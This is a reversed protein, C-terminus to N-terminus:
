EDGTKWKLLIRGINTAHSQITRLHTMIELHTDGRAELETGTDRLREYHQRELVAGLSRYKKHKGKMRRAKELDMDRFVEIARALQKQVKTHYEILEKKGDASFEVKEGIWSEAKQELLNTCTDAIQELEKVSYMIQFAEDSRASEIGKRIIRTLYQNVEVSLFDVLKEKELVENIVSADKVLFPLIVDGVMDQTIQAIRLTEQKALNLGIAPTEIMNEDLYITKLLEGEPLEKEPLIRDILGAILNALPLFICAMMINFVTHANAIQRPVSEAMAQMDGAPLDSKPSIQTVIDAFTPIWTVLILMGTITIFTNALAVKKAETSAKISSLFATISTGINSGLLLPIAAELTLLGQAALVIVIGIFASSSQILATLLVGVLIGILPNELRLLLDIFPSYERLPYMAESMVYMGFFLIGFGLISQGINKYKRNNAFYLLSFGIAIMLLSYDTLKFAVLQATVTTGIHAGLLIAITRKFRMLKSNVFGVLMVSTASSSQIIMTVFTGLGLAVIRNKTLNGLIARLKDGAAKKMGESMMDMGLLFLGLGGLLGIVLMFFWNSKKAEFTFVQFDNDISSEIRAAMEYTGPKSGLQVETIAIGDSDSVSEEYLVKFGESKKPQYLIKFYVTQGSVPRSLSDLVQVRVPNDLMEDVVDNQHDGSNVPKVLQFSESIRISDVRQSAGHIYAAPLGLLFVFLIFTIRNKM